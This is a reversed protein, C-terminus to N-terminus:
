SVQFPSQHRGGGRGRDPLDQCIADSRLEQGLVLVRDSDHGQGLADCATSDHAESPIWIARDAPQTCQLPANPWPRGDAM